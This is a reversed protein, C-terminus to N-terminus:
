TVRHVIADKSVKQYKGLEFLATVILSGSALAELWTNPRTKIQNYHSMAERELLKFLQQRESGTHLKTWLPNWPYAVM